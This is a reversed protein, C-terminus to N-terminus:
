ILIPCTVAELSGKDCDLMITKLKNVSSKRDNKGHTEWYWVELMQAPQNKTTSAMEQRMAWCKESRGNFALLMRGRLQTVSMVSQSQRLFWGLQSGWGLGTKSVTTAWPGVDLDQYFCVNLDWRARCLWSSQPDCSTMQGKLLSQPGNQHEWRSLADSEYYAQVRSYQQCWAQSSPPISFQASWILLLV